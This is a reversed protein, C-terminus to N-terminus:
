QNLLTQWYSEPAGLYVQGSRRRWQKSQAQQLFKITTASLKTPKLETIEAQCDGTANQAWPVQSLYLPIAQGPEGLKAFAYLYSASFVPTARCAKRNERDNVLSFSFKAQPGSTGGNVVVVVACESGQLQGLGLVGYNDSRNGPLESRAWLAMDLYQDALKLRYSGAYDQLMSYISIHGNAKPDRTGNVQEAQWECRLPGKAFRQAKAKDHAMKIQAAIKNLREPDRVPQEIRRPKGQPQIAPDGLELSLINQYVKNVRGQVSCDTGMLNFMLQRSQALDLAISFGALPLKGARMSNQVDNIMQQNARLARQRAYYKYKAHIRKDLRLRETSDVVEGNKLTELWIEIPNKVLAPCTEGVVNIVDVVLDQYKSDKAVRDFQADQLHILLIEVESLAASQATPSLCGRYNKDKCIRCDAFILSAYREYSYPEGRQASLKHLYNYDQKAKSLDSSNLVEQARNNVCQCFLPSSESVGAVTRGYCQYFIDDNQQANLSPPLILCSLLLRALVNNIFAM